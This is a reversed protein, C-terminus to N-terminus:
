AKVEHIMITKVRERGLGLTESLEKSTHWENDKQLIDYLKAAIDARVRAAEQQREIIGSNLGGM